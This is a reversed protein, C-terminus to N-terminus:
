NRPAAQDLAKKTTKISATLIKYLEFCDADLSRYMELSIYDTDYLLELWYRTEACEKYAIYIKGLFDRRSMACTAEAVNAGISTGSRLIQKSLVYEQNEACLTQYLRVIRVAFRKSKKQLVSPERM